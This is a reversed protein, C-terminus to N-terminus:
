VKITLDYQYATYIFDADLSDIPISLNGASNRKAFFMDSSEEFLGGLEELKDSAFVM